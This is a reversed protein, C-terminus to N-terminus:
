KHSFLGKAKALLGGDAKQPAAPEAASPKAAPAPAATAAASKPEEVKAKDASKDGAKPLNQVLLSVRRNAADFPKDPVHLKQDAFGRVQSVQDDRIGNEQM